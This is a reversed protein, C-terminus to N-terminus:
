PFVPTHPDRGGFRAEPHHKAFLEEILEVKSYPVNLILLVQGNDIGQQFEKLRSNPIAAAVMGAVWGGFLAGGLATVLIVATQLALGQPPFLVLLIGALLGIASGVLAGLQAGHVLDTKQWFNAAPMDAPLLDDRAWFRMNKEQIRMLLLEDLMARASSVDPLMVYLKRHYMSVEKRDFRKRELYLFAAGILFILAIEPV